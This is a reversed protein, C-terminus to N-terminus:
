EVPLLDFLDTLSPPGRLVLAALEPFQDFLARLTAIVQIFREELEEHSLSHVFNCIDLRDVPAPM